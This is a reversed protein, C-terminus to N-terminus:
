PYSVNNHAVTHCTLTCSGSGTGTSTWSIVGGFATVNPAFNVLRSGTSQDGTLVQAGVKNTTSHLRFHCEACIANGGGDGATDIDTGPSGKGAVGTLHKSHYKFNTQSAADAPITSAAPGFPAQGHCVYCLAFDGADYAAKDTVGDVM